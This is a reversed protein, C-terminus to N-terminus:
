DIGLSTFWPTQTQPIDGALVRPLLSAYYATLGAPVLALLLGAARGVAKFLFPAAAAAAFTILIAIM